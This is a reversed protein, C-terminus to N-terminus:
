DFVPVLGDEQSNPSVNKHKTAVSASSFNDNELRDKLSKIEKTAVQNKYSTLDFQKDKSNYLDLFDVLQITSKPDSFIETLRQNLNQNSLLTSVRQVKENKWGTARLEEQLLRAREKSKAIIEENQQKKQEIIKETKSEKEGFVKKAEELLEEDEELQDLAVSIAKERMGLTRYHEALFERASDNTELNPVSTEEFYSNFFNKIEDVTVNQGATALFKMIVKSEDPYSNVVSNLVQQPLSDFYQDLEEWTGKFEVSEDVYGREKIQEFFALARPDSETPEQEPEQTEVVEENQAEQEQDESVEIPPFDFDPIDIDHENTM